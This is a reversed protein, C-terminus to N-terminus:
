AVIVSSSCVYTMSASRSSSPAAQSGFLQEARDREEAVEVSDRDRSQGTRELLDPDPLAPDEEAFAIGRIAKVEDLLAVQDDGDSGAVIDLDSRYACPGEEALQAQEECPARGGRACSGLREEPTQWALGELCEDPVPGLDTQRHRRRDRVPELLPLAVQDARGLGLDLGSWQGDFPARFPAACTAAGDSEREREDGREREPRDRWRPSEILTAPM